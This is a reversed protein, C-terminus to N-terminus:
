WNDYTQKTDPVILFMDIHNIYRALKRDLEPFGTSGGTIDHGGEGAGRISITFDPWSAQSIDSGTVGSSGPKLHELALVRSVYKIEPPTVTEGWSGTIQVNKQGKYFVGGDAFAINRAGSVYKGTMELYHPYMVFHTNETLEDEDTTIIDYFKVSDISLLKYPIPPYFFLKRLGKGDFSFTTDELVYFINNCIGEVMREALVIAEEVEDDSFMTLDVVKGNVKHQRVLTVTTYHPEDTDVSPGQQLSATWLIDNGSVTNVTASIRIQVEDGEVYSSPITWSANYIGTGVNTITVVVATDVGNKVLVGTPLSDANAAAGSGPNQTTFQVTLEDGPRAM